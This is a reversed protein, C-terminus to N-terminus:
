GRLCKVNGPLNIKFDGGDVKVNRQIKSLQITTSDNNREIVRAQIPMGDANVWINASKYGSDKKPNLKLHAVPVGRVSEEGMWQIRYNANLEAKSMSMFALANNAKGGGAAKKSDGCFAQKLRPRYMTYEGKVVALYEELPKAWDIRVYDNRGNKPLYKAQGEYIDTEGLTSDTKAMKVNAVLSTLTERHAEMRNLTETLPGQANADTTASAGFVFTFAISLLSLRIIKQM